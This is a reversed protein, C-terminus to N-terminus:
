ATNQDMNRYRNLQEDASGSQQGPASQGNEPRKYSYHYYNNEDNYM